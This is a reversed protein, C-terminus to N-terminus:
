IKNHPIARFRLSKRASLSLM